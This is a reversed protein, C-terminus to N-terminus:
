STSANVTYTVKLQDGNAVAVDGGSFLATSWLTNGTGATHDSKTQSNTGGAIFIGKVTGSATIDFIAKTTTNTISQGSPTNPPWEPRTTASSANNADTYSAFEDWGNGAQNIDDYIDTPDLATYGTLDILGMYWATRQTGADFYVSLNNNLGENVIGNPMSYEGIKEGERYHEVTIRGSQTFLGDVFLHRQNRSADGGWPAIKTVEVDARDPQFKRAERALQQKRMAAFRSRRELQRQNM